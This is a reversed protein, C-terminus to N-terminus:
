KNSWADTPSWSQLHQIICAGYYCWICGGFVAVSLGQMLIAWLLALSVGLAGPTVTQGPSTLRPWDWYQNTSFGSLIVTVPINTVQSPRPLLFSFKTIAHLLSPWKNTVIFATTSMLSMRYQLYCHNYQGTQTIMWRTTNMIACYIWKSWSYWMCM